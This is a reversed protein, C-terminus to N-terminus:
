GKMEADIAADTDAQWGFFGWDSAKRTKLWRYRAADLRLREIEDAAEYMLNRCFTSTRDSRLREVIDTM